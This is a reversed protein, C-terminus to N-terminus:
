KWRDTRFPAAPLGENNFLNPISASGWGFRVAVPKFLNENSVMITAGDIVATAKIYKQNEGAIEFYTLQEGKKMLGSGTMDFYLRIKNGEIKMSKYLPGSWVINKKNYTKALAWLSLREGVDKKNKPHIDDIDGIDTTVVMGTNPISLAMSQSEQLLPANKQNYRSWPAIQVYYFPLDPSHREDRWSNILAPFLAQYQYPRDVNNEGQYWLVGKITYSTIPAIMANYLATPRRHPRRVDKVGRPIAPKRSIQRDNEEVKLKIKRWQDLAEEYDKEAYPYNNGLRTWMDFIGSITEVQLLKERSIWAEIPSGGKSAIIIGVPVNLEQSIKRAFYYAVASHAGVSKPSCTEWAGECDTQPLEAITHKVDFFRIKPYNATAIEAEANECNKLKMAMNSQGSALWVEGSLVDQLIIKNKGQINIKYPGGAAPSKIKILWSGNKDAIVTIPKKQWSGRVTVKEDPDAWGWIAVQSKQQLVMGDSIVTPLSVEAKLFVSWIFFLFLKKM